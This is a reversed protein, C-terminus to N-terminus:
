VQPHNETAERRADFELARQEWPLPTIQPETEKSKQEVISEYRKVNSYADDNINYDLADKVWQIVNEETVSDLSVFSEANAPLLNVDAEVKAGNKTIEFAANVITGEVPTNTTKIQTIKWNM